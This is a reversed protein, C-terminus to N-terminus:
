RERERERECVCVRVCMLFKTHICVSLAALGWDSRDTADLGFLILTVDTLTTTCFMLVVSIFMVMCQEKCLLVACSLSVYVETFM